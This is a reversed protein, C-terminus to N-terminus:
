LVRRAEPGPGTCRFGIYDFEAGPRVDVVVFVGAAVGSAFCGGRALAYGYWDRGAAPRWGMGQEMSPAPATTVSPSDATFPGRVIGLENGQVDDFVWSFANGAFDYIHQGNSLQHWRREDPDPSVFWAAQTSGVTHKHLGQFLRGQGVVGSTWNVAQRAIDQAIALAQLETLLQLGAAACAARAAHYNINVWPAAGASIQLAGLAGRSALYQGVTFGPVVLGRPLTSTPVAVMAPEGAVASRTTACGTDASTM